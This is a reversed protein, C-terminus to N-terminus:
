NKSVSTASGGVIRWKDNKKSWVRLFLIQFPKGSIPYYTNLSHVIASDQFVTIDLKDTVLKSYAKGEVTSLQLIIKKNITQGDHGIILVKDDFLEDAINSTDVDVLCNIEFIKNELKLIEDYSM